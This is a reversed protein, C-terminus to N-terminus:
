RGETELLRLVTEAVQDGGVPESLVTCGPGPQACWVPAQLGLLHCLADVADRVEHVRAPRNPFFRRELPDSSLLDFRVATVIDSSCALDVVDSLVPPPGGELTELQPALTVLLIALQSRTLRPSSLATRACAPLLSLRWQLKVRHLKAQRQPHDAPLADYLTMATEWDQRGEALRGSLLLAEPDAGLRALAADAEADRGLAVLARAELWVATREGPELGLVREALSLAEGADGAELRRNGEEVRHDVYRRRLQDARDVWAPRDWLAAGRRAAALATAEDGAREAAVSLTIWAAAYGPEAVVLEAIGAAAEPPAEGLLAQLELLRAPAGGGARAAERRASTPDGAALLAWGREVGQSSARDLPPVGPGALPSPFGLDVAPPPPATACSSAIVLAVAGFALRRLPRFRLPGAATPDPSRSMRGALQSPL